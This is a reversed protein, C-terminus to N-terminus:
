LYTSRSCGVSVTSTGGAWFAKALSIVARILTISSILFWETFVSGITKYQVSHFDQRIANLFSNRSGLCFSLWPVVFVYLLSEILSGHLGIRSVIRRHLSGKNPVVSFRCDLSVLFWIASRLFSQQNKEQSYPAQWDLFPFRSSKKLCSFLELGAKSEILLLICVPCFDSSIVQTSTLGVKSCGETSATTRSPVAITLM